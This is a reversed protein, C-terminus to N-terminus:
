QQRRKKAPRTETAWTGCGFAEVLRGRGDYAKILTWYPPATGAKRHIDFRHAKITRINVTGGIDYHITLVKRRRDAM